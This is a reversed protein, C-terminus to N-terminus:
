LNKVQTGCINRTYDSFLNYLNYCLLAGDAMFTSFGKELCFYLLSTDEHKCFITHTKVTKDNNLKNM